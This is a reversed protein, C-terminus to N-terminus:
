AHYEGDPDFMNVCNHPIFILTNDEITVPNFDIYHTGRGKEIWLIHYFQARHPIAMMNKSKSFLQHLDKIEFELELSQKFQIKKISQSM